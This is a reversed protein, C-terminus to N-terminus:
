SLLLIPAFSVEDKSWHGKCNTRSGRLSVGTYDFHYNGRGNGKLGGTAPVSSYDEEDAEEDDEDEDDEDEEDDMDEDGLDDETNSSDFDQNHLDDEEEHIHQPTITKSSPPPGSKKVEEKKISIPAEEKKPAVPAPTPAEPQRRKTGCLGGFSVFAGQEYKPNHGRNARKSYTSITPM